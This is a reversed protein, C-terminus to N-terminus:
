VGIAAQIVGYKAQRKMGDLDTTYVEARARNPTPNSRWGIGMGAKAAAKIAYEDAARQVSSSLLYEHFGASNRKFKIFRASM